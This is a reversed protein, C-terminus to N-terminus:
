KYERAVGSLGQEIVSYEESNNSTSVQENKNNNDDENNNSDDHGLGRYQRAHLYQLAHSEQLIALQTSNNSNNNNAVKALVLQKEVHLSNLLQQFDYLYRNSSTSHSTNSNNGDNEEEEQEKLYLDLSTKLEFPTIIPKFYENQVQTVFDMSKGCGIMVFMDIDAFNAIKAVNLKGIYLVQYSKGLLTCWQKVLSLMDMYQAVSVTSVLIGISNVKVSACLQILYQRRKYLRNALLQDDDDTVLSTSSNSKNCVLRTYESSINNSDSTNNYINEQQKQMIFQVWAIPCSQQDTILMYHLVKTNSSNNSPYSQGYWMNNSNGSTSTTTNSLNTQVKRDHAIQAFTVQVQQQQLALAVAPQVQGIVIRSLGVEYLIVLEQKVNDEQKVQQQKTTCYQVIRQTCQSVDIPAVTDFVHFVPTSKSKHLCAPGFHVICDAAAHHAAIEDVCCAAFTTDGLIFIKCQVISSPTSAVVVLTDLASVIQTSYRLLDDPFQLAVKCYKNDLIWAAVQV